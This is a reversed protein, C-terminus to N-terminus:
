GLRPSPQRTRVSRRSSRTPSSRSTRTSHRSRSSGSTPTWTPKSSSLGLRSPGANACPDLLFPAPVIIAVRRHAPAPHTRRGESTSRCPRRAPRRSATSRMRASRRRMQHSSARFFRATPTTSIVSSRRTERGGTEKRAASSSTRASASTTRRAATRGTTTTTPSRTRTQAAPKLTRFCVSLSRSQM